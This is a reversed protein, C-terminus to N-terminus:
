EEDDLELLKGFGFTLTILQGKTVVLNASQLYCKRNFTWNTNEDVAITMTLDFILDSSNGDFWQGILYKYFPTNKVNVSFGAGYSTGTPIGAGENTGLEQEASPESNSQINSTVYTIDDDVMDHGDVNLVDGDGDLLSLSSTQANGWLFEGGATTFYLTFQMSMYTEMVEITKQYNDEVWKRFENFDLNQLEGYQPVSMNSIAVGSVAGYNLSTGVFVGALYDYIEYFDNKFRVPYYLVVSVTQSAQKLQPVPNHTGGMSGIFVPIFNKNVNKDAITDIHFGETAVKFLYDAPNSPDNLITELKQALETLIIM